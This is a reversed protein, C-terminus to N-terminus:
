RTKRTLNAPSFAIGTHDGIRFSVRQAIKEERRRRVLGHNIRLRHIVNAADALQAAAQSARAKWPEHNGM